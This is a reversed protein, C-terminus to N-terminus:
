IKKSERPSDEPSSLEQINMHIIEIKPYTTQPEKESRKKEEIEKSDKKDQNLPLEGVKVKQEDNTQPEKESKKGEEIEKADKKDENPSLEGMKVKQEDNANHEGSIIMEDRHIFCADDDPATNLLKIDQNYTKSMSDLDNTDYIHGPGHQNETKTENILSTNM